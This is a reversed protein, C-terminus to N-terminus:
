TTPMRGGFRDKWGKPAACNLRLEGPSCFGQVLELPPASPPRVNGGCIWCTGSGRGSTGAGLYFFAASAKLAAGIPRSPRATWSLRGGGVAQAPQLSGRLLQFTARLVSLQIGPSASATIRKSTLLNWAIACTM